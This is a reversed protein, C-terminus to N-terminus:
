AAEEHSLLHRIVEQIQDEVPGRLPGILQKYSRAIAKLHRRVGLVTSTSMQSAARQLKEHVNEDHALCVRRAPDSVLYPAARIRRDDLVRGPKVYVFGVHGGVWRRFRDDFKREDRVAHLTSGRLAWGVKVIGGCHRAFYEIDALERTIYPHEHPPAMRKIAKHVRVHGDLAHLESARLVRMHSWGLRGLVRLLAQEYASACREVLRPTHGNDLAHADALLLVIDRARAAWRVHEAAFLMGLVDLPLGCSLQDLSTMGIGLFVSRPAHGHTKIHALGALSADTDFLSQQTVVRQLSALFAVPNTPSAM